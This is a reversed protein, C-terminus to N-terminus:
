LARRLKTGRQLVTNVFCFAKGEPPGSKHQAPSRDNNGAPSSCLRTPHACTESKAPCQLARRRPSPLARGSESPHHQPLESARSIKLERLRPSQFAFWGRRLRKEPFRQWSPRAPLASSEGL